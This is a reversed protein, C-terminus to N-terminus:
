TGDCGGVCDHFGMRLIQPVINRDATVLDAIAARAQQLALITAAYPDRATPATTPQTTPSTTPRATPRTTQKFSPKPTTAKPALLRGNVVDESIANFLLVAGLLLQAKM